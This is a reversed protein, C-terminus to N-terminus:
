PPSPLAKGVPELLEILGFGVIQHFSVASGPFLVAPKAPSATVVRLGRQQLEELAADSSPVSYCCHYALGTNDRLLRDLPGGPSGSVPEILEVVPQEPHTCLTLLVNQLPDHITEGASYGLMALFNLADDRRRVAVGIHHFRARALMTGDLTM